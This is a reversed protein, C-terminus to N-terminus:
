NDVYMWGKDLMTLVSSQKVCVISNYKRFMLQNDNKCNIDRSTIGTQLQKLPPLSGRVMGAPTLFGNCIQSPDFFLTPGDRGISEGPLGRLM